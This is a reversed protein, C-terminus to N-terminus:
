YQSPVKNKCHCQLVFCITFIIMLFQLTRKYNVRILLSLIEYCHFIFLDLFIEAKHYILECGFSHRRITIMFATRQLSVCTCM